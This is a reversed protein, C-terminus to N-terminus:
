QNMNAVPAPIGFNPGPVGGSGSPPAGPPANPPPGRPPNAPPAGSSQQAPGGGPSAAAAAAAAATTVPPNGPPSRPPGESGVQAGASNTTSTASDAPVRIPIYTATGDPGRIEIRSSFAVGPTHPRHTQTGANAVFPPQPPQPASPPPTIPSPMPNTGYTPFTNLPPIDRAESSNSRTSM